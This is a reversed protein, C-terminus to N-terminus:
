GTFTSYLSDIFTQQTAFMPLLRSVALRVQELPPPVIPLHPRSPRRSPLSSKPLPSHLQSPLQLLSLPPQLRLQTVLLLTPTLRLTNSSSITLFCRSPVAVLKPQRLQDPGLLLVLNADTSPPFPYGAFAQQISNSLSPMQYLQRRRHNRLPLHRFFSSQSSRSFKVSQELSFSKATCLLQLLFADTRKKCFSLFHSVLRSCSYVLMSNALAPPVSSRLLVKPQLILRISNRKSSNSPDVFPTSSSTSTSVTPHPIRCLSVQRVAASNRSCATIPSEHFRVQKATQGQTSHRTARRYSRTRCTASEM